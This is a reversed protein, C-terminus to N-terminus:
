SAPLTLMAIRLERLRSMICWGYVGTEIFEGIIVANIGNQDARGVERMPLYEVSYLVRSLLKERSALPLLALIGDALPPM